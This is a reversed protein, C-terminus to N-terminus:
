GELEELYLNGYITWYSLRMVDNLVSIGHESNPHVIAHISIGYAVIFVMYIVMFYGLDVM